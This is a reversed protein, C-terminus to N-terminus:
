PTTGFLLTLLWVIAAILPAIATLYIGTGIIAKPPNELKDLVQMWMASKNAIKQKDSEWPFGDTARTVGGLKPGIQAIIEPQELQTDIADMADLAESM